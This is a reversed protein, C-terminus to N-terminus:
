KDAWSELDTKWDIRILPVRDRYSLATEQVIQAVQEKVSPDHVVAVEDHCNFPAVVWKGVGAPQLDWIRRQVHKTIEAGPSQIEHNAAARMNAAQIQFAAGYLASAVAGGATQVRDRRVVKVQCDKWQKPPKQALGFLAKCIQNELTFYRKFGLFTECYDKPDKWIVRSGIGGPQTMSCFQAKVRERARGIGPYDRAFQEYAFRAREPTVGLREVLTESTGGYIMAFIGNKGKTYWDNETKESSLVEDYTLGSVISGFLGHIKKTTQGTGDCDKCGTGQCKHCPVVTLLQQRLREDNYVADALTVEFSWFDGLSLEYGGWKFPFCHRVEKTRKIGQPNLGDGGAMRSSLTGIVKFSPHFRKARLLKDYLEIEKKAIKVGLIEEARRAAPHKGRKLTGGDCRACGAGNCKTCPEDEEVTWPLLTELHSKKTSAALKKGALALMEVDDMVETIYRRVEPPKNINIPAKAVTEVAAQRLERIADLDLTFGHWRVVAVMGALVSDNDNPEPYGFHKDLDRTYVIDDNAYERANTNHAWHEIHEKIIGPWAYGHVETGKITATAAWHEEPSSIALATPAYGLEIPRTAPEVDTYHKPKYGLVHEALSKLGMSARFKLCVDKLNASKTDLVKWRASNKAAKAFYISDLAIKQELEHALACALATPVRRIRIDKRAMLSQMPGKQAYIMLDLIGKPKICPGDCGKPELLAIEDIHEEPIWDFPCLRFITYLKALVFVDFTLNFGVITHTLMWEMLRLTEHVPHKWVEYLTIPGDGVAYQILVPPSTLGVTETDVYLRNNCM